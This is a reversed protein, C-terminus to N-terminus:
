PTIMSITQTKIFSLITPVRVAIINNLRDLNAHRKLWEDPIDLLGREFVALRHLYPNKGESFTRIRDLFTRHEHMGGIRTPLIAVIRYLDILKQLLQTQVKGGKYRILNSTLMTNYYYRAQVMSGAFYEFIIRYYFLDQQFAIPNFGTGTATKFKGQAQLIEFQPELYAVVQFCIKAMEYWTDAITKRIEFQNELDSTPTNGLRMILQRIDNRRKIYYDSGVFDRTVLSIRGLAQIAEVNEGAAAAIEAITKAPNAFVEAPVRVDISAQDVVLGLDVKKATIPSFMQMSTNFEGRGTQSKWFFDINSQLLNRDENDGSDALRRGAVTFKFKDVTDYLPQMQQGIAGDVNIDIKGYPARTDEIFSFFISRGEVVEQQSLAAAEIGLTEFGYPNLALEEILDEAVKQSLVVANLHDASFQMEKSSSRVFILYILSIGALISFGIIIEVLTFARHQRIM